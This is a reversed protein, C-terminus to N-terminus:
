SSIVRGREDAGIDPDNAARGRLCDETVHVYEICSGLGPPRNLKPISEDKSNAHNAIHIGLVRKAPDQWRDQELNCSVFTRKHSSHASDETHM